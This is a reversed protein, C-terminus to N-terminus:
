KKPLSCNIQFISSKSKPKVVNRKKLFGYLCSEECFHYEQIKQQNNKLKAQITDGSDDKTLDTKCFDCVTLNKSLLIDM